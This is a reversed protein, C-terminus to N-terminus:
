QKMFSITLDVLYFIITYNNKEKSRKNIYLSINTLAGQKKKNKRFAIETNKVKSLVSHSLSLSSNKLALVYLMCPTRLLPTKLLTLSSFLSHHVRFVRQVLSDPTVQLLQNATRVDVLIKNWRQPALVSRLNNVALCSM